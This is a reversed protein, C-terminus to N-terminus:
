RRSPRRREECCTDATRVHVYQMGGTKHVENLEKSDCGEAYSRVSQSMRVSASFWALHLEWSSSPMLVVKNCHFHCTPKVAFKCTAITQRPRDRCPSAGSGARAAPRVVAPVGAGDSLSRFSSPTAQM